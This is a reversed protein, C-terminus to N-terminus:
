VGGAPQSADSRILAGSKILHDVSDSTVRVARPGVQVETIAGAKGLRQVTRTSM